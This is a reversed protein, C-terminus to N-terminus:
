FTSTHYTLSAENTEKEYRAGQPTFFSNPTLSLGISNFIKTIRAKGPATPKTMNCKLLRADPIGRTTRSLITSLRLIVSRMSNKFFKTIRAQRKVNPSDDDKFRTPLTANRLTPTHPIWKGLSTSSRKTCAMWECHPTMLSAHCRSNTQRLSKIM